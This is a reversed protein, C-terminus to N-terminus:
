TALGPISGRDEQEALWSSLWEAAAAGTEVTIYNLHQTDVRKGHKQCEKDMSSMVSFTFIKKTQKCEYIEWFIDNGTCHVMTYSIVAYRIYIILM